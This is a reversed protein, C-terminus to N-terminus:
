REPEPFFPTGTDETRKVVPGRKEMEALLSELEQKKTTTDVSYFGEYAQMLEPLNYRDLAGANKRLKNLEACAQRFRALEGPFVAKMLKEYETREKELGAPAFNPSFYKDALRRHPDLFWFWPKQDNLERLTAQSLRPGMMELKALQERMIDLERKTLTKKERSEIRSRDPAQSSTRGFTYSELRAVEKELEATGGDDAAQETKTLRLMQEELNKLVSNCEKKFAQWEDDTATPPRHGMIDRVDEMERETENRKQRRWTEDNPKKLAKLRARMGEAKRRSEDEMRAHREKLKAPTALIAKPGRPAHPNEDKTEENLWRLNDFESRMEPQVEFEGSDDNTEQRSLRKREPNNM